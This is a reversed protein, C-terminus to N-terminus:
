EPFETHLKYNGTKLVRILDEATKMREFSEIGCTHDFVTVHADSGCTCIKDFKEAYIRAKENDEFSNSGNFTEFGDLLNPDLMLEPDSIYDRVRYPHAQIVLAGFDRVCESLEKLSCDELQPNDYLFQPTIGYLLVEKGTGVESDRESLQEEVGFLVDFDMADGYEKLQLYQDEYGKCFEHWGNGRDIRSYGHYFHDTMVVGTYGQSKLGELTEKLEASSCKSCLRFHRHM